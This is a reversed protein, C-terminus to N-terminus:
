GQRDLLRRVEEVTMMLTMPEVSSARFGFREYFAKAEGSIAHVLIARVGVTAAAGVIRLVADLLLGIGLGRGQWEKDLALRGILIAPVPDPMNRRAKSTAVNHMISAAALSYYGVVRRRACIVLTRSAGEGENRLARRKLWDDLATVGSDFTAVDHDATLPAPATPRDSASVPAM